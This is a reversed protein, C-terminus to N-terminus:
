IRNARRNWIVTYTTCVPMPAGDIQFPEFVWPRMAAAIRGDWAHYGSGRQGAPGGTGM